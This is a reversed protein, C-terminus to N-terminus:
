VSFKFDPHASGLEELGKKRLENVEPENRTKIKIRNARLLYWWGFVTAPPMLFISGLVIWIGKIYYPPTNFGTLAASTAAQGIMAISTSTTIRESFARSNVASWVSIIPLLPYQAAAALCVGAYRVMNHSTAVLLMIYGVLSGLSCVIIWIARKQTRDSLWGFFITSVFGCAYVPVTMLQAEVGNYGMGKVITPLFSSLSTVAIQTCAYLIIWVYLIPWKFPVFLQRFNVQAHPTNNAQWTRLVAMRKEEESFGWKIREPVPPLAFLVFFGFAVSILGEVLFLWQWPTYPRSHSLDKVIGYAILGSFAGALSSTSFYIAGRTALERPTYWLSLYLSAAHIWGEAVGVLVRVAVAQSYTKVAVLVITLAGWAIVGGGITFPPTFKRLTMTGFPQALVYGIYFFSNLNAWHSNDIHLQSQMGAVQANGIDVRDVTALLFVISLIPLITLDIKWLLRRMVRRDHDSLAEESVPRGRVPDSISHLSEAAARAQGLEVHLQSVEIKDESM